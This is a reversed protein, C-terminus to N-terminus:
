LYHIHILCRCLPSGPDRLAAITPQRDPLPAALMFEAGLGVVAPLPPEEIHDLSPLLYLKRIHCRLLRRGDATYGHGNPDGLCFQINMRICIRHSHLRHQPKKM